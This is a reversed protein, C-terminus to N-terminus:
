KLVFEGKFMTLLELANARATDTIRTGGLMRSIEEIREEEKLQKVTSFTRDKSVQKSVSLHQHGMAAIQPLHTICLVQRQTSVAMLKRGLAEATPGGVGSDVEDFVYTVVPDQAAIVRKIALTIRSLEGGSAVKQLPMLPEGTNASIALSARELGRPGIWLENVLCGQNVPEFQVELRAQNMGLDKLEREISACLQKAAHQRAKSLIEAQDKLSKAVIERQERLRILMDGLNEYNELELQIKRKQELVHGLTGGYKRKLDRLLALRDEQQQLYQPDSSLSKVYQNVTRGVDETIAFASNLDNLYPTLSQDISSLAQLAQLAQTLREMASNSGTYLFQDIKQANQKLKEANKLKILELQLKEDENIDQINAKKLEEFQFQLFDEKQARTEEHKLCNEIKEDIASLQLYSKEVEDRFDELKGAQDVIDLHNASRRLNHHEHQGSVELIATMLENLEQTNSKIENIFVQNKGSRQLIRSIRLKKSDKLMYKKIQDRLLREQSLDFTAEIQAQEAGTRIMAGNAREGQILRLANILTSKGSGTEGTIVTLGSKVKLTLNEILAFNQIRLTELMDIM